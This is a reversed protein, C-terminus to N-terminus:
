LSCPPCLTCFLLVPTRAHVPSIEPCTKVIYTRHGTGYTRVEPGRDHNWGRRELGAGRGGGGVRRDGHGNPRVGRAGVDNHPEQWGTRCGVSLGVLRDM